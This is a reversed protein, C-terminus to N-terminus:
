INLTPPGWCDNSVRSLWAGTEINDCVIQQVPNILIPVM